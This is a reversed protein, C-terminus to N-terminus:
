QTYKLVLADTLRTSGGYARGAIYTANGVLFLANGGDSNNGSGNFYRDSGSPTGSCPSATDPRFRTFVDTNGSTPVGYGTLQPVEDSDFLEVRIAAASDASGGSGAGLDVWCVSGDSWNYKITTMNYTGSSAAAAGTVFVFEASADVSVLNAVDYAYDSANASGNYYAPSSWFESLASDYAVTAYDDGGPTDLMGPHNSYGTVVIMQEDFAGYVGFSMATAVDTGHGPSDWRASGLVSGDSGYNRTFYDKGGTSDWSTGTVFIPADIVDSDQASYGGAVIDVATDDGGNDYSKASLALSGDSTEYGITLYDWDIRAGGNHSVKSRGTVIVQPTTAPDTSTLLMATPVDDGVGGDYQVVGDGSFATVLSGSTNYKLIYYDLGTQGPGEGMVYIYGDDDILIKRAVWAGSSTSPYTKPWGSQLTGDSDAIKFLAMKSVGASVYVKGVAYVYSGYKAVDYAEDAGNNNHQFSWSLTQGSAAVSLTALVATVAKLVLNIRM